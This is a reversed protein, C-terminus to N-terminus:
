LIQLIPLIHGLLLHRWHLPARNEQVRMKRENEPGDFVKVYKKKRSSVRGFDMKYLINM